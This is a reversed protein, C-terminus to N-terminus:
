GSSAPRRPKTTTLDISGGASDRTNLIGGVGWLNGDQAGRLGRGWAGLLNVAADLIDGAAASLRDWTDLGADLRSV